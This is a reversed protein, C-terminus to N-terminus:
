HGSANGPVKGPQPLSPPLTTQANSPQAVSPPSQNNGQNNYPIIIPPAKPVAPVVPTQVPQQIKPVSIVKHIEKIPMEPSKLGFVVGGAVLLLVIIGLLIWLFRRMKAEKIFYISDVM